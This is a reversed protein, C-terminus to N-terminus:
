FWSVLELGPIDRFDALNRTVLVSRTSLAHGAIMRDFDRGRVWGLAALIRGYAEAAQHDFPVVPVERIFVELRPGRVAFEAPDNALGRQLEALSLASMVVEGAHRELRDLAWDTGELAHIAINTDLLYAL